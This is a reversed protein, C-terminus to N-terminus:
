IGLHIGDAAPIFVAVRGPRIHYQVQYCGEINQRKKRMLIGALTRSAVLEQAGVLLTVKSM